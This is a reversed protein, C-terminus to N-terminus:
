FAAAFKGIFKSYDAANEVDIDGIITMQAKEIETKTLSKTGHDLDFMLIPPPFTLLSRTKGIGFPGYLMWIYPPQWWEANAQLTLKKVEAYSPPLLGSGNVLAKGNFRDKVEWFEAGPGITERRAVWCPAGNLYRVRLVNDCARCFEDPARKGPLDPWGKVAIPEPPTQGKAAMSGGKAYVKEIDEHATFVIEVGLDRKQKLQRVLMNMRETSGPYNHMQRITDSDTGTKGMDKSFYLRALEGASDFAVTNYKPM